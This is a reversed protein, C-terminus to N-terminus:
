RIPGLIGRSTPLKTSSFFYTSFNSFLFLSRSMFIQGCIRISTKHTVLNNTSKQQPYYFLLLTLNFQLRRIYIFKSLASFIM